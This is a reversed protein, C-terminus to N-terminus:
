KTIAYRWILYAMIIILYIALKRGESLKKM